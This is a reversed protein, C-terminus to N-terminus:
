RCNWGRERCWRTRYTSITKGRENGANAGEDAGAEREIQYHLSHAMPSAELSDGLHAAIHSEVRQHAGDRCHAEQEVHGELGVLAIQSQQLALEVSAPSRM